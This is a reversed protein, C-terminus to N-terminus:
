FFERLAGLKGLRKAEENWRPGHEAKPHAWHSMEHLLVLMVLRPFFRIEEHMEIHPPWVDPDTEGHTNPDEVTWSFKVSEVPPLDYGVYYLRRYREYWSKLDSVAVRRAARGDKRSM